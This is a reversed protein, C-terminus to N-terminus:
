GGDDVVCSQHIPWVCGWRGEGYSQVHMKKTARSSRRLTEVELLIHKDTIGLDTLGYVNRDFFAWEQGERVMCMRYPM